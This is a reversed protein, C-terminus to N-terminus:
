ISVLASWILPQAKWLLGSSSLSTRLRYPVAKRVRCVEKCACECLRNTIKGLTQFPPQHICHTFKRGVNDLGLYASAARRQDPTHVPHTPTCTASKWTSQSHSSPNPWTYELSARHLSYNHGLILLSHCSLYPLEMAGSAPSAGDTPAVGMDRFQLYLKRSSFRQM